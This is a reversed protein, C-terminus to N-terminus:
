TKVTSGPAPIGGVRTRLGMKMRQRKAKGKGERCWKGCKRNEAVDWRQREKGKGVGIVSQPKVTMTGVGTNVAFAGGTSNRDTWKNTVAFTAAPSRAIVNVNKTKVTSVKQVKAVEVRM